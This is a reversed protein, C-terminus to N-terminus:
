TEGLFITAVVDVEVAGLQQPGPRDGFDQDQVLEPFPLVPLAFEQQPLALLDVVVPLVDHPGPVEHPGAEGGRFGGRLGQGHVPSRPAQSGPTNESMVGFCEVRAGRGHIVAEGLGQVAASQTHARGTQSGGGRTLCGLTEARGGNTRRPCATCTARRIRGRPRSTPRLATAQQIVPEVAEVRVVQKPSSVGGGDKLVQVAREEGGPLRARGAFNVGRLIPHSLALRGM